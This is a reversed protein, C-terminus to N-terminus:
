CREAGDEDCDWGPVVDEDNDVGIARLGERSPVCTVVAAGDVSSSVIDGAAAATV